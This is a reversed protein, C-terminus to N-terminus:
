VQCGGRMSRGRQGSPCVGHTISNVVQVPVMAPDPPVSESSLSIQSLCAVTTALFYLWMEECPTQLNIIFWICRHMRAHMHTSSQVQM